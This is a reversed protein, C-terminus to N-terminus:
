NSMIKVEKAIKDLKPMLTIKRKMKKNQHIANKLITPNIYFFNFVFKVRENLKQHTINQFSDIFNLYDFKSTDHKFKKQEFALIFDYFDFDFSQQGFGSPGNYFLRLVQQNKVWSIKPFLDKNIGFVIDNKTNSVASNKIGLIASNEANFDISKKADFDIGFDKVIQLFDDNNSFICHNM